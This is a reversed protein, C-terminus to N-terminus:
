PSAEASTPTPIGGRATRVLDKVTSPSQAYVVAVYVAIGVSVYAFLQVPVPLVPPVLQKMMVISGVMIASGVLPYVLQRLYEGIDIGILRHVPWLQLPSLAYGRIVYAAAVAVIGWRVAITFAIINAVANIMTLWLRWNAKGAALLIAGNYYYVSHLIGILCLVQMVPISPSWKPGYVTAVLEPAVVMLGLFSPFAILSTYRTAAYLGRRMRAPDSQVRAFAPFAVRNIVDVLLGMLNKLPLSYAITYYGLAVPGLLWGILFDDARRNVVNALNNGLVHVSFGFLDQFHRISFRFTPRWSSVDWLALTGVTGNTLAQIVLSWVGLGLFAAVVGAIGGAANALLSRKALRDFALERQLIASQTAQLGNLLLNISLWRIIPALDPQRFVAAIPGALFVSLLASAVGTTTAIWFVADLHEEEIAARQILASGLGQEVFIGVVGIYILAMAVMGFAEPALLRALAVTVLLSFFSTGWSDIASWTVARSLTPAGV